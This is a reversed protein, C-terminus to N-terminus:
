SVSPFVPEKSPKLRSLQFNLNCNRRLSSSNLNFLLHCKTNNAQYRLHCKISSNIVLPRLCKTNSNRRCRTSSNRRCRTSSNNRRCRTSSNNLRLCWTTQNSSSVWKPTHNNHFSHSVKSNNLLCRSTLHKCWQSSTNALLSSSSFSPQNFLHLMTKSNSTSSNHCEWGQTRQSLSRRCLLHEELQLSAWM